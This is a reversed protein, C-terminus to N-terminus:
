HGVWGKAKDQHAQSLEITHENLQVCVKGSQELLTGELMNMAPSGIFEAVFKNKPNHYVNMPTDVQMIQGQNLICVRDGMTMAEVQDHTVYIMTAPKGSEQLQNHLRIIRRRMSVRLKADLNSLPEDFLFVDPNRVMARGLAVRQRQGGSMQKPKRDLLDTIELLEAAKTVREKIEAKSKKATELGFALNEYATMHPYLAYNQFVMAIGRDKPPLDNCERDGIVLQGDTISELGAVMRLMTSKACGSPGVLVMFEGDKIELSVDHIAHFGNDYVKNVNQLTVKAM